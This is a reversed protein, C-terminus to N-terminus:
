RLIQIGPNCCDVYGGNLYIERQRKEAEEIKEQRCKEKTELTKEFRQKAEQLFSLISIFTCFGPKHDENKSLIGNKNCVQLYNEVMANQYPLM